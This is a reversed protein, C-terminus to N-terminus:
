YPIEQKQERKNALSLNPIGNKFGFNVNPNTFKQPKAPNRFQNNPKDQQGTMANPNQFGMNDMGNANKFNTKTKKFTSFM